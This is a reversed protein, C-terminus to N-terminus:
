AYSKLIHVCYLYCFFLNRVRPLVFGSFKTVRNGHTGQRIGVKPTHTPTPTPTPSALGRYSGEEKLKKEPRPAPSHSGFLRRGVVSTRGSGSGSGCSVAQLCKM